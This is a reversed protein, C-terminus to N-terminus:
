APPGAEGWDYPPLSDLLESNNAEIWAMMSAEDESRNISDVERRIEALVKSDRLDPLWIQRPRLGNARLVARRKAVREAGTLNEHIGM